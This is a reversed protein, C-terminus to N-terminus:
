KYIDGRGGIELIYIIGDHREFIIRYDGIRLHMEHHRGRLPAVDGDPLKNIAKFIRTKQKGSLRSLYKEADKHIKITM